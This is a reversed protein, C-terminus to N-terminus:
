ELAELSSQITDPSALARRCTDLVVEMYPVLVDTVQPTTLDNCAEMEPPISALLRLASCFTATQCTAVLEQLGNCRVALAAACSALPKSLLSSADNTCQQLLSLLQAYISHLLADSTGRPVQRQIKSHLLTLCLLQTGVVESDSSLVFSALWKQYVQWTEADTSKNWSELFNSAAGRTASDTTPRVMALAAEAVQQEM